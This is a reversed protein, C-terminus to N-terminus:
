IFSHCDLYKSLRTRWRMGNSSGGRQRRMVLELFENSSGESYTEPLLKAMLEEAKVQISGNINTAGKNKPKM